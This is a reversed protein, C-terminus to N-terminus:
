IVHNRLLADRAYRLQNELDTIQQRSINEFTKKIDTTSIGDTRPLYHVKCVENLDDFKGVWDSGMVLIDVKLRQIDLKKQTWDEEPFVGSVGKIAGVITARQEYPMISNKGKLANFQDSSVGVYLQDGLKGARQLLRVHGVHFLDFTGYTLVTTM